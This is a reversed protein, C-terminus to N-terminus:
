KPQVLHEAQIQGMAAQFNRKREYYSLLIKQIMKAGEDTAKDTNVTLTNPFQAPLTGAAGLEVSDKNISSSLTTNIAVPASQVTGGIAEIAVVTAIFEDIFLIISRYEEQSLAGNLYAECLRFYGDRLLQITQTRLAISAVAESFGGAVQGGATQTANVPANASAAINAAQAAIADPSPESCIVPHEVGDKDVKSGQLVLRQRADLSLVNYPGFTDKRYITGGGNSCAALALCTLSAVCANFKM